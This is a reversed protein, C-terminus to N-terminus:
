PVVFTKFPVSLRFLVATAMGPGKVMPSPMPATLVAMTLACFDLSMALEETTVILESPSSFRPWCWSLRDGSQEARAVDTPTM